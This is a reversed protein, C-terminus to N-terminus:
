LADMSPLNMQQRMQNLRKIVETDGTIGLEKGKELLLQRDILERLIEKERSPWKGSWDGPFQQQLESQTTQKAREYDTRTIIATNVRAIIEDVINDARLAVAALLVALAAFPLKKLM